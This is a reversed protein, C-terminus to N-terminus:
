QGGAGWDGDSSPEGTDQVGWGDNALQEDVPATGSAPKASNEITAAPAPDAADSAAIPLEERSEEYDVQVSVMWAVWAALGVGCVVQFPGVKKVTWRAGTGGSANLTM